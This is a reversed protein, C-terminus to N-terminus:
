AAQPHTHPRSYPREKYHPHQLLYTALEKTYPYPRQLICRVVDISVHFRTAAGQVDLYHTRSLALYHEICCLLPKLLRIPDEYFGIDIPHSPEDEPTALFELDHISLTTIWEAVTRQEQINPTRDYFSDPALHHATALEITGRSSELLGRLITSEILAQRLPLTTRFFDFVPRHVIEGVYSAWAEVDDESIHEELHWGAPIWKRLRDTASEYEESSDMFSAPSELSSPDAEHDFEIDLSHDDEAEAHDPCDWRYDDTFHAIAEWNEQEEQKTLSPLPDVDQYGCLLCSTTDPASRYLAASSHGCKKCGPLSSITAQFHPVVLSTNHHPHHYGRCHPCLTNTPKGACAGLAETYTMVEQIGCLTEIRFHPFPDQNLKRVRQGNPMTIYGHRQYPGRHLTRILTPVVPPAEGNDSEYRTERRFFSEYADQSFARLDETLKAELQTLVWEPDDESQLYITHPVPYPSRNLETVYDQLRLTPAYTNM